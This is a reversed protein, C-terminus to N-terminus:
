LGIERPCCNGEPHRPEGDKRVTESNEFSPHDPKEYADRVVELSWDLLDYIRSPRRVIPGHAMNM